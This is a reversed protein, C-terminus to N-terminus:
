LITYPSTGENTNGEESAFDRGYEQSQWDQIQSDVTRFYGKVDPDVYGFPADLNMEDNTQMWQPLSKEIDQQPRAEVHEVSVVDARKKKGRKRHERPMIASQAPPHDRFDFCSVKACSFSNSIIATQLFTQSLRKASSEGFFFTPEVSFQRYREWIVDYPSLFKVMTNAADLRM